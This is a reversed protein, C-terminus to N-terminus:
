ARRDRWYALAPVSVRRGGSNVCELRAPNGWAANIVTLRQGKWELRKGPGKANTCRPNVLSWAEGAGILRFSALKGGKAGCLAMAREVGCFPCVATGKGMQWTWAHGKSDRRM